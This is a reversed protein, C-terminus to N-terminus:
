SPSRREVMQEHFRPHDSADRPLRLEVGDLSAYESEALAPSVRVVVRDGDRVFRLGDADLLRHIDARLLIGDRVTNRHRWAGAGGLHAAELVEVVACGTVACRWGYAAGVRRRFGPQEERIPTEATRVEFDGDLHPRAALWGAIEEHDTASGQYGYRRLSLSEVPSPLLGDRIADSYRM